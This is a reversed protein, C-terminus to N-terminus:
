LLGKTSPLDSNEYDKSISSRLTQAFGKFVSEIIHHENEGDAKINLTCKLTDTLSKFFHKFMECPVDGIKERKLPVSWELHPRGSLDLAIQALAEDMPLLFGFRRVGKMDGLAVRLAEGLTLGTDEITHHEDVHLDGTTHIKLDIGSHRGIQDLMHDFFGLGTKIDTIGTGDLSVKVEISTEKTRRIVEATRQNKRLYDLVQNWSTVVCDAIPDVGEKFRISGCGLNQAFEVDTDRDGIVFSNKLDFNGKRYHDVLGTRPKRTPSNEEPFSRDILVQAFNIGENKLISLMLNHPPYFSSDPLSASGLGDQNTVMVLEYSFEKAILSLALIAGPLFELKNFSDVQFNDKPEVIITGDRDIFLIRKM